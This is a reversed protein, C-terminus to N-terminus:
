TRYKSNIRIYEETLDCSIIRASAKGSKLDITVTVEDNSLLVKEAAAENNADLGNEVVKVLDFFIDVKGPDLPIGSRGLAAMIRGWNADRGYIATKVLPSNAVTRAAKLAHVPKAAGKVLVTFIKTAGEGDRVCMRALELTIEDLAREFASLDKSSGDITKNGALGNALLIVTDNTSTDGDVTIRNFSKDVSNKLATKLIKPAIAADTLIFCLMTAMDPCIMGAGKAIAAITCTKSGLKQSGLKVRRSALKPFSDTTMIAKAADMLTAQGINQACEKLRPAIREMPMPSGIVGTSCVLVGREDIDLAAAAISAMLAADKMGREGTCANANGSNAVIARASGGKVRKMDMLVPAAKVANKTFVAAVAAPATSYILAVDTRGPKKVAAEIVSIKFGEPMDYEINIPVKSM